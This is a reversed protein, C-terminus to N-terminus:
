QRMIDDIKIHNRYYEYYKELSDNVNIWYYNTMINDYEYPETKELVGDLALITKNSGINDFDCILLVREEGIKQEELLGLYLAIKAYGKRRETPRIGYGIHSAWTKLKEDSIHYRINIMGVIRNDKERVVFFTKSSCRNVQNGYEISEKQNLESLWKEYTMGELCNDMGGTGNLDSNYKINEELYELAEEKRNITPIELFLREM